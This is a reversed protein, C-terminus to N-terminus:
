TPTECLPDQDSPTQWHPIEALDSPAEALFGDCFVLQVNGAVVVPQQLHREQVKHALPSAQVQFPSQSTSSLCFNAWAQTLAAAALVVSYLAHAEPEIVPNGEYHRETPYSNWKPCQADQTLTTQFQLKTRKEQESADGKNLLSDIAVLGSSAKPSFRYGQSQQPTPDIICLLIISKHVIKYPLKSAWTFWDIFTDQFSNGRYWTNGVEPGKKIERARDLTPLEIVM